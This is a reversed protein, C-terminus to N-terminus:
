PMLPCNNLMFCFLPKSVIESGNSINTIEGWIEREKNLLSIPQLLVLSFPRDICLQHHILLFISTLLPICDFHNEDLFYRIKSCHFFHNSFMYLTWTSNYGVTVRKKSSSLRKMLEKTTDLFGELTHKSSSMMRVTQHVEWSSLVTNKLRKQLLICYGLWEIILQNGLHM